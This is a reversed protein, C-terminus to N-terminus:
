VCDARCCTRNNGLECYILYMTPLFGLELVRAGNAVTMPIEKFIEKKVLNTRTETQLDADIEIAAGKANGLKQIESLTRRRLVISIRQEGQRALMRVFAATSTDSIVHAINLTYVRTRTTMRPSTITRRAGAPRQEDERRQFSAGSRIGVRRRWRNGREAAALVPDCIAKIRNSEIRTKRTIDDYKRTKM